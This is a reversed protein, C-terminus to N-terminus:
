MFNITIQKPSLTKNRVYSINEHTLKVYKDFLKGIDM